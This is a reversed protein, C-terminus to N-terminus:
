EPNDEEAEEFNVLKVTEGSEIMSILESAQAITLSATREIDFKDKMLAKVYTVAADENECMQNASAFIKRRQAESIM